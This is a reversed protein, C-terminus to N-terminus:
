AVAAGRSQFRRRAAVHAEKARITSRVRSLQVRLLDDGSDVQRLSPSYVMGGDALGIIPCRGPWM